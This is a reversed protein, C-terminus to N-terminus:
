VRVDCGNVGLYFPGEHAACRLGPNDASGGKPEPQLPNERSFKDSTPLSGLKVLAASHMFTM